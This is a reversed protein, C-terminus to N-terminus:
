SAPTFIAETRRPGSCRDRIELFVSCGLRLYTCAYSPGRVVFLWLKQQRFTAVKQLINGLPVAASGLAEDDVEALGEVDPVGAADGGFGLKERSSM